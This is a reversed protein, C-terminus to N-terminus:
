PRLRMEARTQELWLEHEFDMRGVIGYALLIGLLLLAARFTV